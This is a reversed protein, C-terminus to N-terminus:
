EAAEVDFLIQQRLLPMREEMAAIWEPDEAQERTVVQLRNGELFRAIWDVGLSDHRRFTFAIHEAREQHIGLHVLLRVLARTEHGDFGWLLNFRASGRDGVVLVAEKTVPGFAPDGHIDPVDLEM